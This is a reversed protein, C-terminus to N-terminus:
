PWLRDHLVVSPENAYLYLLGLLYAWSLLGFVIVFVGYTDSSTLVFRNVFWTGLLAPISPGPPSGPLQAAFPVKRVCLLAHLGLFCCLAGAVLPLVYGAARQVAHLDPDRFM